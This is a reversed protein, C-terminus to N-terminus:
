VGLCDIITKLAIFIPERGEKTVEFDESVEDAESIVLSDEVFALLDEQPYQDFFVDLKERFNKGRAENFKEWNKEEIEELEEPSIEACVGLVEECSEWVVLSLYLLYEKEEQTLVLFPESFLYGLIAPQQAKFEAIIEDFDGDLAGLQEVKADIIDEGVFKKSM